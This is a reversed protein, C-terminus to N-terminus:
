WEKLVERSDGFIRPLQVPNSAGKTTPLTLVYDGDDETYWWLEVCANKFYKASFTRVTSFDAQSM